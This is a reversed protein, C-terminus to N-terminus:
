KKKNNHPSTAEEEPAPKPFGFKCAAAYMLHQETPYSRTTTTHQQNSNQKVKGGYGGQWWLWRAVKEVKLM